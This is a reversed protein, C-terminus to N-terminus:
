PPTAEIRVERFIWATDQSTNRADFRVMVRVPADAQAHHYTGMVFLSTEAQATRSVAFARPAHQRFYDRMVYFAQSRSYYSRSGLVSVDIREASPAFLTEPTGEEFAQVVRHVAESHETSDALASEADQALALAPGTGVLLAALALPRVAALLRACALRIPVVM